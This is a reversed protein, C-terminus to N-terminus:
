DDVLRALTEAVCQRGEAPANGDPNFYLVPDRVPSVAFTMSSTLVIILAVSLITRNSTKM